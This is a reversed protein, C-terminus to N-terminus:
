STMTACPLKIRRSDKLIVLTYVIKGINDGTILKRLHDVCDNGTKRFFVAVTRIENDVFMQFDNQCVLMEALDVRDFLVDDMLFLNNEKWFDCTMELPVCVPALKIFLNSEALLEDSHAVVYPEFQIGQCCTITKSLNDRYEPQAVFPYTAIIFISTNTQDRM